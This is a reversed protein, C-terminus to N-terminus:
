KPKTVRKEDFECSTISMYRPLNLTKTERIEGSKVKPLGSVRLAVGSCLVPLPAM